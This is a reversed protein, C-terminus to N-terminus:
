INITGDSNISYHRKPEEDNVVVWNSSKKEISSLKNYESRLIRYQRKKM